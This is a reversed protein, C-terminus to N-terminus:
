VQWPSDGDPREFAPDAVTIVTTQGGNVTFQQDSAKLYGEPTKTEKLTYTGTPLELTNTNGSEDTTLTGVPAGSGNYVTFEAGKLSYCDNGDTVSPNASVKQVKAYGNNLKWNIEFFGGGAQTHSTPVVVGIIATNGYVAAVYIHAGLNDSTAAPENYGSDLQFGTNVGVHGCTLGVKVESPITVVNTTQAHITSTRKISYNGSSLGNVNM